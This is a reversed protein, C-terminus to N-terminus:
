PATLDDRRPQRVIGVRELLCILLGTADLRLPRNVATSPYRHHFSHLGEGLLLVALVASDRSENQAGAVKTGFFHGFSNISYTLQHLLALRAAGGLLVGELAGGWDNALYGHDGSVVM